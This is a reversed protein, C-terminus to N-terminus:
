CSERWIGDSCCTFNGRVTGTKVPRGNDLCQKKNAQALLEKNSVTFILLALISIKALNM